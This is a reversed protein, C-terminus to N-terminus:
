DCEVGYTALLSLIDSAATIGDNDIDTPCSSELEFTCNGDDVNADPNFNTAEAYTCGLYDCNGDDTALPDYNDANFDTCGVIEEG